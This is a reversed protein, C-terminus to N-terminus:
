HLLDHISLAGSSTQSTKRTSQVPTYIVTVLGAVISSAAVDLVVSSFLINEYLDIAEFVCVFVSQACM